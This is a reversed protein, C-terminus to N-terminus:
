LNEGDDDKRLYDVVEILNMSHSGKVLITDGEELINDINQLLEENNIYYYVEKDNNKIVDYTYKTMNGVCIVVDIEDDVCERGIDKHIEEGYGDVELIDGFIFVGRGDVM